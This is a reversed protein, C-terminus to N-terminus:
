MEGGKRSSRSQTLINYESHPSKKSNNIWANIDALDFRLCGNLKICPIQGLEAWQYITKVKVKLIESLEKITLLKMSSM